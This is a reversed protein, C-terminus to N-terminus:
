SINEESMKHICSPPILATRYAQRMTVRVPYLILSTSMHTVHISTIYTYIQSLIGECWVGHRVRTKDRNTKKSLERTSETLLRYDPAAPISYCSLLAKSSSVFIFIDSTYKNPCILTNTHSM